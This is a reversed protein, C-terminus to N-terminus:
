DVRIKSNQKPCPPLTEASSRTLRFRECVFSRKKNVARICGRWYCRLMRFSVSPFSAWSFLGAGLTASSRSLTAGNARMGKELSGSPSRKLKEFHDFLQKHSIIPRIIEGWENPMLFGGEKAGRTPSTSRIAITHIRLFTIAVFPHTKNGVNTAPIIGINPGSDRNRPFALAYHLGPM